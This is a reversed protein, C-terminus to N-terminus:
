DIIQLYIQKDDYLFQQELSTLDSVVEGLDDVKPNRIRVREIPIPEASPDLSLLEENYKELVKHKFELASAEPSITIKFL